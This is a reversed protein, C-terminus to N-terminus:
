SAGCLACVGGGAGCEDGNGNGGGGGGVLLLTAKGGSLAKFTGNGKLKIKQGTGSSSTDESYSCTTSFTLGTGVCTDGSLAYGTPCTKTCSESGGGGGFSGVAVRSASLKKTIIPTMAAIIVSITILSIMLEVLSFARLLIKKMKNELIGYM